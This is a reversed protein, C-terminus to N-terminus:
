SSTCVARTAARPSPRAWGRRWGCATATKACRWWASASGRGSSLRAAPLSTTVLASRWCRASATRWCSASAPIRWRWGSPGRWATRWSPPRPRSSSAGRPRISTAAEADRTRSIIELRSVAGISALAEGRFGLTAVSELDAAEALKSTAHSAVALPLEGAAIGGGDDRVEIRRIGGEELRVEIRTAGADIANELLEKVVSAPREVVEGAAIQDVVIRDLARIPNM